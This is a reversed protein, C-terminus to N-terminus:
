HVYPEDIEFGPYFLHQAIARAVPERQKSGHNSVALWEDAHNIGAVADVYVAWGDVRRVLVALVHSGLQTYRMEGPKMESIKM